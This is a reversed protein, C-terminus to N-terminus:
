FYALVIGYLVLVVLFGIVMDRAKPNGTFFAYGIFVGGLVMVVGFIIKILDMTASATTKMDDIVKTASVQADLQLTPILVLMAILTLFITSKSIKM